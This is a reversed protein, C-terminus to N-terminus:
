LEPGDYEEERQLRRKEAKALSARLLEERKLEADTKPLVAVNNQYPTGRLEEDVANCHFFCRALSPSPIGWTATTQRTETLPLLVAARFLDEEEENEDSVHGPRLWEYQIARDHQEVVSRELFPTPDFGSLWLGETAFPVRRQEATKLIQHDITAPFPHLNNLFPLGPDDKILNASAMHEIHFGLLLRWIGGPRTAPRRDPRPFAVDNGSRDKPEALFFMESGVIGLHGPCVCPTEKVALARRVQAVAERWEELYNIITNHSVMAETYAMADHPLPKALIIRYWVEGTRDIFLTRVSSNLSQVILHREAPTQAVLQRHQWLADSLRLIPFEESEEVPRALAMEDGPKPFLCRRASYERNAANLRQAEKNERREMKLWQASENRLYHLCYLFAIDVYRTRSTSQPISFTLGFEPASTHGSQTWWFIVVAVLLFAFIAYITPKKTTEPVVTEVPVPTPVPAPAPAPASTEAPQVTPEM